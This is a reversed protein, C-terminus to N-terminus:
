MSSGGTGVKKSQLQEQRYRLQQIRPALGDLRLKGTELAHYLRELRSNIGAIEGSIIACNRRITELSAM